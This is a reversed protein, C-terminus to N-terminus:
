VIKNILNDKQQETLRESHTTLSAKSTNTLLNVNDTVDREEKSEIFNWFLVQVNCFMIFALAINNRIKYSRKYTKPQNLHTQKKVEKEKRLNTVEVFDKSFFLIFYRIVSTNSTYIEIKKVYCLQNTTKATLLRRKMQLLMHKKWINRTVTLTLTLGDRSHHSCFNCHVQLVIFM